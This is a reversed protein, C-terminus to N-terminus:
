LTSTFKKVEYSTSTYDYLKEDFYEQLNDTINQVGLQRLPNNQSFIPWNELSKQKQNRKKYILTWM